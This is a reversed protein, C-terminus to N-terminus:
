VGRWTATKKGAVPIGQWRYFLGTEQTVVAHPVVLHVVQQGELQM